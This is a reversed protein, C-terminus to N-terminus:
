VTEIKDTEKKKIVVLTNDAKNKSSPIKLLKFVCDPYL